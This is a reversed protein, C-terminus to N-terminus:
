FTDRGESAIRLPVLMLIAAVFGNWLHPKSTHGHMMSVIIYVVL